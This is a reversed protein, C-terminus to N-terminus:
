ARFHECLLDPRVYSHATPQCMIQIKWHTGWVACWLSLMGSSKNYGGFLDSSQSSIQIACVFFFFFPTYLERHWWSKKWFAIREGTLVMWFAALSKWSPCWVFSSDSGWKKEPSTNRMEKKLPTTIHKPYFSSSTGLHGLIIHCQVIGNVSSWLSKRTFNKNITFNECKVLSSSPMLSWVPAFHVGYTNKVLLTKTWTVM